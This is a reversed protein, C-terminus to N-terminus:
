AYGVRRVDEFALMARKREIGWHYGTLRADAGLIRHCPIVWSIPNAGIAAGVARVAKPNDIAQAIDMYRVTQGHPVALLAKWVQLQFATGYLAIPLLGGSFVTAILKNAREDDRCFDANPYRASLDFFATGEDGIACFAMASLGRPSILCVARGFPSDAAGWIFEIGAAKSAAEGPSLAEHRICLDHLRSPASLGAQYSADEVSGGGSLVSSAHHFALADVYRKPSLGAWRTFIKHFHDASLGARRAAAKYDPRMQWHAGLFGLAEAMREYDKAAQSFDHPNLPPSM